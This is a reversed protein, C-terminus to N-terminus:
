HPRSLGSHATRHESTSPLKELGPVDQLRSRHPVCFHAAAIAAGYCRRRSVQMALSADGYVPQPCSTRLRVPLLWVRISSSAFAARGAHIIKHCNCVTVMFGSLRDLFALGRLSPRSLGLVFRAAASCWKPTSLGSPSTHLHSRKSPRHCAGGSKVASLVVDRIQADLTLAPTVCHCPQRASAERAEPSHSPVILWCIVRASHLSDCQIDLGYRTDKGGVLIAKSPM